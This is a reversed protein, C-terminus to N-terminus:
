EPQRVPHQPLTQETWIIKGSGTYRTGWHQALQAVIFLGRGGEDLTRAHRLHPAAPSADSAECTLFRDKILRLQVPPAGHRIANTVLESVIIETALSSDTLNWDALQRIARERALAVEEPHPLVTWTAVQNEGLIRTRALLLVADHEPRDTARLSYVADDRLENLPREHGSLVQRLRDRATEHSTARYGELFGHNYLALISGEALRTRAAAFPEEEDGLSPGRPVDPIASTGDPRVLVPPPHDACAMTCEGNLPDYVVYTCTARLPEDHVPDAPPLASREAALRMVTDNLRALLEDPDLDLAALANIATRLQGMTTATHISHGAVEGVTLALRAGSLPIADFWGGSVEAPRHFHSVEAAVQSVNGQPLLHRQLTLAITHERTFRRANDLCVATFAVLEGALVVDDATFPDPRGSRYFGVIGLVAGRLVIPTVIMCHVGAERLARGREPDAAPWSTTEDLTVLRPELDGLSQTYPTPYPFSSTGGAAFAGPRGTASKFAARQMPEDGFLPGLPPENGRVVTDLVDLVVADAFEPVAVDALERCTTIADLSSGIKKRAADRVAARAGEREHETVDTLSVVAGLVLGNSDQLRFVSVSYVHEPGPEATPRGVVLRDLVPVGTSLVARAMTEVGEPSTTNLAETVPRGLLGAVATGRDGRSLTNVRQVRLDADVILLGVPAQTFLAELLASGFGGGLEGGCNGAM